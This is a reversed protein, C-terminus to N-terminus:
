KNNHQRFNPCTKCNHLPCPLHSPGALVLTELVHIGVTNPDDLELTAILDGPSLAVGEPLKFHIVGAAPALLPM